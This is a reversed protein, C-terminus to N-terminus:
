NGVRVRYLVLGPGPASTDTYSTTGGQGAIGSALPMLIPPNAMLNTSRELSYTTGAVSQWTVTVNTSTVRPPLLRLASLANTPNTGAIWEQWNNMGDGDPDAYDTSGDTPLGYRQLWAYSLVSTPHQFEYAGIDVTGGVIRPNGELDTPCSVFSNNGANICPSGSELRLNGSALDLLLPANTLNGVGNPPLPTTCCYNLDNAETCNAGIPANNFYVICNELISGAVGGGGGGLSSNTASNRVLTCNTLWCSSAGGGGSASNSTFSCNNLTCFYAGGGGGSAFNGTLVSRNLSSSEAGGGDGPSYNSILLCNNLISGYAGGGGSGGTDIAYAVNSSITCNSLTGGYAAGGQRAASNGTLLCNVVQAGSSECWVGGGSQERHVEPEEADWTYLTAGNTLTFGIMAAGNTLYVCRVAGNGNTAGPLQTGRILTLEPGNLSRLLLPLTVAVRNTMAGYVARGGRDYVGNTVLVVAGAVSAADVADQITRAATAWSNYPAVPNTSLQSVLHVPPTVVSVTVRSVVGGPHDENYAWLAVPYDGNTQWSHSAYPRNSIVIGDGFDWASASVNGDIQGTFGVEVLPAVNTFRAMITLTLPGRQAALYLEDCGVSPPNAWPEGDVDVGGAYTASGASRCPSNVSIHSASALQPEASFNGDGYQPLPTTCCFQFRIFNEDSYNSGLTAVNYYLVCNYLDCTGFRVVASVGGGEFASNGTLTCNYLASDDAGGGFVASNGSVVCNSLTSAGAGGGAWSSNYNLSCNNLTCGDAGGGLDTPASNGSLLCNNLTCYEAGGGADGASNGSLVCRALASGFAGGGSLDTFNGTLTCRVLTGQFAGGGGTNASNANLTCNSVIASESECWVGGGMRELYFDANGSGDRTAGGTLGFGALVTGNTLYACRVAGDGNTMGPVQYGQIVTAEPGNVSRLTLPVTVAVRNTLSGNVVRGGLAYVGNTVIVEDGVASADVADQIV